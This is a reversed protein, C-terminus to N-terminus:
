YFYVAFKEYKHCSLEQKEKERSKKINKWTTIPGSM